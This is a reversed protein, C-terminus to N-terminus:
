KKFAHSIINFLLKVFHNCRLKTQCMHRSSFDTHYRLSLGPGGSPSYNM